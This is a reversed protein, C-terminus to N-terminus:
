RLGELATRSVTVVGGPSITEEVDDDVVNVLLDFQPGFSGIALGRPESAKLGWILLTDFVAGNEVLEPYSPIQINIEYPAARRGLLVAGLSITDVFQLRSSPIISHFGECLSQLFDDTPNSKGLMANLIHDSFVHGIPEMELVALAIFKGIAKFKTKSFPIELNPFFDAQSVIISTQDFIVDVFRDFWERKSFGIPFEIGLKLRDPSTKSMFSLGATLLKITSLSELRTLTWKAAGDIPQPGLISERYMKQLLVTYAVEVDNAVNEPCVLDFNALRFNELVYRFRDTIVSGVTRSNSFSLSPDVFRCVPSVSSVIVDNLDNALLEGSVLFIIKLIDEDPSRLYRDILTPIGFLNFKELTSRSPDTIIERRVYLQVTNRILSIPRASLDTIPPPPSPSITRVVTNTITGSIPSSSPSSRPITSTTKLVRRATTTTIGTEGRMNNLAWNMESLSASNGISESVRTACGYLTSLLIFEIRM